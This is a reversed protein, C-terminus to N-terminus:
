RAAGSPGAAAQGTRPGAGSTEPNVLAVDKDTPFDKLVVRNETVRVIQVALPAFQTGERVYVVPKGEKEFLVQRPLHTVGTLREGDVVLRATMGPRLLASPSSLAFAASFQRITQPEWFANQAVGGIGKSTGQLTSAPMAEVQVKAAGGNEVAPRDTEAIKAKIEMETIDVVEAVTTGPEVTDGPKFEPLTMGPWGFGGSANQNEKIVVMGDLPARLTMNEINRRAFDAAIRAKSRKEELVALGARKSEAHTTVDGEIQVLARRAEALALDNKDAQIRGVFENGSVEIEARRVEHRAHMLAVADTSQQVKTDARLKAIEQEAEALESEAQQLNFQQEARDFETVVDGNKVVSGGAALRLIQLMGGVSPASLSMSRRPALEGLTHVRVDLDGKIARTTPITAAAPALDQMGTVAAAGALGVALVVGLVGWRRM